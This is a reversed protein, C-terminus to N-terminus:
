LERWSITSYQDSSLPFSPPPSYLLNADYTITRNTYGTGDTYAFGYRQNTAIMGFLTLQNRVYNASCNSAYYHRGVRGSKALLAADIQLNDDSYLGVNVNGQAVLSIVDQGDYNTYRLDNNVTIHKLDSASEPFKAAAITVRATNIQGEVWVDDEVFVIGNAPIPYNAIFTRTNISWTGWDTQSASNSCAGPPNRLSNVRYVDMTDDTRLIIQYGDDASPALYRGGSQASTKMDALDATFGNFDLAPVPFSRGAEFVAPVNPVATPPLPDVPTHTHVGYENAGAHDPDDYSAVASTVVNHAIGDFRIGNNSHLAGFVETGAGFRIDTNAVFAYKALSPIALRAEITRVVNPNSVIRGASKITVITSGPLPPTITLSYTGLLVGSTDYYNHVYPGPAGTGDQFDQQAHALHWRYYEIGAEAIYFAQERQATYRADRLSNGAWTVIAGIILAAIAGFILVQVLMIGKQPSRHM